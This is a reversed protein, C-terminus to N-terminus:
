TDNPSRNPVITLEIPQLGYPCKKPEGTDPDIENTNFINVNVAAPHSEDDVLESVVTINIENNSDIWANTIEAHTSIVSISLCDTLSDESRKTLTLKGVKHDGTGATITSNYGNQSVSASRYSDCDCVEESYCQEVHSIKYCNNDPIRNGNGDTVFIKFYFDRKAGTDNKTFYARINYASSFHPYTIATVDPNQIENGNADCTVASITGCTCESDPYAGIFYDDDDICGWETSYARIKEKVKDCDNCILEEQTVDMEFANNKCEVGDIIPYFLIATSRESGENKTTSLYMKKNTNDISVTIWDPTTGDKIEYALTGCNLEFEYDKNNHVCADLTEQHPNSTWDFNNFGSNNCTCEVHAAQKVFITFVNCIRGGTGHTYNGSQPINERDVYCEIYITGTREAGPNAEIDAWVYECYNSTYNYKRSTFTIWPTPSSAEFDYCQLSNYIDDTKFMLSDTNYSAAIEMGSSVPTSYGYNITPIERCDCYDTTQTIYVTKFCDFQEEQNKKFYVKLGATEDGSTNSPLVKIYFNYTNDGNDQVVVGPSELLSSESVASLSGCGYTNGTAVLVWGVGYGENPWQTTGSKPFTRKTLKVMLGISECDCKLSGEQTIGSTVCVDNGHKAIVTYENPTFSTNAEINSTIIVEGRSNNSSMTFANNAEIFTYNCANTDTTYTGVVYSDSVSVGESPINNFTVNHLTGCGCGTGQQTVTTSSCPSGDYLVNVTFTEGTPDSTPGVGSTTIINTGNTTLNLTSNVFTFHSACDGASFTGIVTQAAVGATPIPDFSIRTLSGCACGTGPQTYTKSFATCEGNKYYLKFAFPMGDSDPNQPISQGNQLYIKNNSFTLNYTTNGNKLTGTIDSDSCLSSQKTYQGVQEGAGVGERPITISLSNSVIITSCGCDTGAQEINRTACTTGNYTATITADISTTATNATIAEQLNMNGTSDRQLTHTVGGVVIKGGLESVSCSGKPTCKFIPQGAAIGSQPISTIFDTFNFSECNCPVGAQEVTIKHQTCESGNYKVSIYGTRQGSTNKSVTFTNGNVQIWSPNQSEFDVTGSGCSSPSFNVNATYTGGNADINITNAM